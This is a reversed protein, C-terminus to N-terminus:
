RTKSNGRLFNQNNCLSNKQSKIIDLVTKGIVSDKNIGLRVLGNAFLEVEEKTLAPEAKVKEAIEPLHAFYNKRENCKCEFIGAKHLREFLEL